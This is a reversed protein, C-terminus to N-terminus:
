LKEIYCIAAAVASQDCTESLIVDAEKKVDEPANQVAIGTGAARLMPIDNYYDGIAFIKEKPVHLIEGLRQLGTGKDAKPNLIECFQRDSHVFSFMSYEPQKKVFSFIEDIIEPEAIMIVKVLDKTFAHYDVTQITFKEFNIHKQLQANDYCCYVTEDELVYLEFAVEPFADYVKDMLGYVATRDVNESWLYKEKKFDYIASGNHSVMPTDFPIYENYRYVSSPIRGTVIAFKGGAECFRRIARQNEESINKGLDLLTNDMDSLLLVDHFQM